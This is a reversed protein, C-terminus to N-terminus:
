QHEQMTLGASLVMNRVFSLCAEECLAETVTVIHNLDECKWHKVKYESFKALPFMATVVLYFNHLLLWHAMKLIIM